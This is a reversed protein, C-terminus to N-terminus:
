SNKLFSNKRDLEKTADLYISAFTLRIWIVAVAAGVAFALLGLIFVFIILFGASFILWGYGSTMEWSKKVAEVADMKSDVILYSVFSLRCALIIGPVILFMFGFGIIVSVLLNGFVANWYNDFVKFMDTVKFKDDRIARLHIYSIGYELPLIFLIYLASIFLIYAGIGEFTIIFLDISIFKNTFFNSNDTLGFAPFEVLFSIITVLLLELFYKWLKGWAFRYHSFASHNVRTDNHDFYKEENQLKLEM